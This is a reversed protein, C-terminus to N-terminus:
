SDCLRIGTEPRDAGFTHYACANRGKLLHFAERGLGCTRFNIKMLCKSKYSKCSTCNDTVIDRREDVLYKNLENTRTSRISNNTSFAGVLANISLRHDINATEALFARCSQPFLQVAACAIQPEHSHAVKFDNNTRQWVNTFPTHSTCCPRGVCLYSPGPENM